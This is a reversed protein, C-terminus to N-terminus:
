AEPRPHYEGEAFNVAEINAIRDRVPEGSKGVILGILTELLVLTAAHSTFFQPTETSVLFVSSCHQCLPSDISDTIGIVHAGRERLQRAAKISRTAYPAKSIILATDNSAVDYVIGAETGPGDGLVHWNEFGMSAVYALYEIFPRSSMAGVLIVRRASGLRDAAQEIQGLDVSALLNKINAISSKAQQVIFASGADEITTNDQLARAKAAFQHEQKKLHSRCVERLDDYGDYGLVEALRSFTPASMDLQRAVNRLSRTAVEDPHELVFRGARQLKPSM